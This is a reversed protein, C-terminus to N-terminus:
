RKYQKCDSIVYGPQCDTRVTWKSRISKNFAAITAQESKEHPHATTFRTLLKASLMQTEVAFMLDPVTQRSAEQLRRFSDATPFSARKEEDFKKRVEGETVSAHQEAAQARLWYGSILFTLIRKQISEYTTKCKARLQGAAISKPVRALLHVLCLKFAPPEYTVPKPLPGGPRPPEVTAAGVAMWHNYTAPTIPTEGVRVVFDTARARVDFPASRAMNANHGTAGGCAAITLVALLAPACLSLPRRAQKPRRPWPQRIRTM